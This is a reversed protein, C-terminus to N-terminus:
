SPCPTDGRPPIETWGSSQSTKKPLMECVRVGMSLMFPASPSGSVFGQYAVCTSPPTLILVNSRRHSVADVYRMSCSFVGECIAM